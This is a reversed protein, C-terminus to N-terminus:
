IKCLKIYISYLVTYLKIVKLFLIEVLEILVQDLHESLITLKHLLTIDPLKISTM